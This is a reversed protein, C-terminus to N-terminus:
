YHRRAKRMPYLQIFMCEIVEHWCYCYGIFDKYDKEKVFPAQLYITNMGRLIVNHVVAM